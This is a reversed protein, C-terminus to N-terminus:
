CSKQVIVVSYFVSSSLLVIYLVVRKLVYSLVNKALFRIIMSKPSSFNHKMGEKRSWRFSVSSIRMTGLFNHSLPAIFKAVRLQDPLSWVSAPPESVPLPFLFVYSLGKYLMSM